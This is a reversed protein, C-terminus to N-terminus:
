SAWRTSTGSSASAAGPEFCGTYGDPLQNGVIFSVIKEKRAVVDPEGCNWALHVAADALKGLGIFGGKSTREAFPRFFDNELDLKMFNGRVTLAFRDGIAGSVRVPPQPAAYLSAVVVVVVCASMMSKM